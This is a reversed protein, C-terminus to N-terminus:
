FRYGLSFTVAPTQVRWKGNATEGVLSTSVHDDITRHPGFIYQGALAWSWRDGRHGIGISIVHLDTDPVIPSFNEETTTTSSFFYGASMFFGKEFYRTVGFEYFWSGQWNLPLSVPGGAARELTLTNLTDWDTYDVNFELNWQPTPRWSVGVTVIQPFDISAQTGTKPAFPRTESYGRYDMTAASRYQAGFSWQEHPKWLIGANFGLAYDDGKFSFEDGPLIGIAQRLRFKSANVNAGAAISLSSLAQWAIVPNVTVYQLRGEIGLTSFPTNEGYYMSLGFPAYVGLGYSFKSDKPSFVYHIQPVFINGAKNGSQVGGPSEYDVDVGLYTLMGVQVNHGELQTIGAPNYYLAAPNDATAVFANGRAIAEADQNPIRVGLGHVSVPCLSLMVWAAAIIVGWFPRVPPHAVQLFKPNQMIENTKPQRVRPSMFRFWRGGAPMEFEFLLVSAM